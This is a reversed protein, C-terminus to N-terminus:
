ALNLGSEALRATKFTRWPRLAAAAGSPYFHCAQPVPPKPTILDFLRIDKLILPVGPLTRVQSRRNRLVFLEDVM